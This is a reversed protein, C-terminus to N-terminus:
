LRRLAFSWDRRIQRYEFFLLFDSQGLLVFPLEQEIFGLRLEVPQLAAAGANPAKGNNPTTLVTLKTDHSFTRIKGQGIGRTSSPSHGSEFVHGLEGCLAHPVVSRDAGTDILAPCRFGKNDPNHPNELFLWVIPRKMPAAHLRLFPFVVAEARDFCM